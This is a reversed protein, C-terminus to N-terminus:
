ETIGEMKELPLVIPLVLQENTVGLIIRKLSECTMEIASLINVKVGNVMCANHLVSAMARRENRNLITNNGINDHAAIDVM